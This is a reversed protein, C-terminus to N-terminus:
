IAVPFTVSLPGAGAAPSVIARVESEANADTGGETVIAATLVVVVKLMDVVATVVGDTAFRFAVRPPVELVVRGCFYRALGPGSTFKTMDRM